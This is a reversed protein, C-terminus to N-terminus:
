VGPKAIDRLKKRDVKVKLLMSRLISDKQYCCKKYKKNSNCYCLANRNRGKGRNSVLALYDEIGRDGHAHGDWPEERRIRRHSQWYFFPVVKKLIFDTAGQWQYEPFIGLCCSNSDNKNVHFDELEIKSDASFRLIKGSTEYVKPFGFSDKKDFEIEIEYSDCIAERHQSDHELEKSIDDYWCCFGLTGWIRNSRVECNLQPFLKKVKDVDENTLAIDM